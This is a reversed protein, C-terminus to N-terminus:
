RAKGIWVTLQRGHAQPNKAPKLDWRRIGYQRAHRQILLGIQNNAGNATSSPDPLGVLDTVDESTFPKGSNALEWLAHRAAQQWDGSIARAAPQQAKGQVNASRRCLACYVSGRPEGHECMLANDM